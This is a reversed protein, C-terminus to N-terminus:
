MFRGRSDRYRREEWEDRPYYGRGYLDRPSYDMGGRMGYREGMRMSYREGFEDRMEDSLECITDYAEGLKKIAHKFRMAEDGDRRSIIIAM